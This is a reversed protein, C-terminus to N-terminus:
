YRCLHKISLLHWCLIDFHILLWFLMFTSSFEFSIMALPHMKGNNCVNRILLMFSLMFVTDSHPCDTIVIDNPSYINWIHILWLRLEWSNQRIVIKKKICIHLYENSKQLTKFPFMTVNWLWCFAMQFLFWSFSYFPLASM